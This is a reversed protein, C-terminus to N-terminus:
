NADATWSIDNQFIWHCVEIEGPASGLELFAPHSRSWSSTDIHCVDVAQNIKIRQLTLIEVNYVRVMPIYHCFYLMVPFVEQHCTVSETVNGGQIRSVRGVMVNKGSGKVNLTKRLVVKPGLMSSAFIEMEDMSRVCKITEGRAPARECNELTEKMRKETAGNDSIRFFQKLLNMNKTTLSPLKAIITPSLFQRKHIKDRIDTMQMVVGENLMKERFFLSKAWKAWKRGDPASGLELFAPHSRSWSSTDIHCVGVAQNIKIKQLTLIEVNYVRVMPIYHCFYLMVPFVEQHCTVSETVNGGQIRSVRGVMVNKGSGKVNLTKRLVVKPGLMSSAFIEMEDMSRVCKIIEGRAPARECNELTEKMRKETAGNDSIRFFQKLLNMNKTTLSPLKAIITPSLFQRKHIKDRIDTMQM